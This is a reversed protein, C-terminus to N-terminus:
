RKVTLVGGTTDFVLKAVQEIENIIEYLPQDQFSATISEKIDTEILLDKRFHKAIDILASDLPKSDFILTGTKWSLENVYIGKEIRLENNPLLYGSENSSILIQNEKDESPSLIVSGTLVSVKVIGEEEAISFSTGTVEVVSEGTFVKFPVNNSVVDFFAEGQLMMERIGGPFGSRYTLVSGANLSVVSGDPLKHEQIRDTTEVLIFDGTSPMQMKFLRYFGYSIGFLFIIIAAIRLFYVHFPIKGSRQILPKNLRSRVAEWDASININNFKGSIKAIEFLQDKNLYKKKFIDRGNNQKSMSNKTFAITGNIIRKSDNASVRKKDM